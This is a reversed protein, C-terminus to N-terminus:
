QSNLTDSAPQAPCNSSKSSTGNLPVLKESLYGIVDFGDHHLRTAYALMTRVYRGREIAESRGTFKATTLKTSQSLALGRLSYFCTGQENICLSAFWQELPKLGDEEGAICAQVYELLVQPTIGLVKATITHVEAEIRTVIDKSLYHHFLAYKGKNMSDIKKDYVRIFYKKNGIKKGLYFTEIYGRDRIVENFRFQTRKWKWLVETKVSCDLAIDIRSVSLSNLFRKTFTVLFPLLEPIAFFTGEFTLSFSMSRIM